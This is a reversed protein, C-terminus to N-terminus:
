PQAPIAQEVLELTMRGGRDREPLPGLTSLFSDGSFEGACREAGDACAVRFLFARRCTQSRDCDDWADLVNVNDGWHDDIERDESVVEGEVVEGVFQVDAGDMGVRLADGYLRRPWAEPTTTLRAEVFAEGDVELEFADADSSFWHEETCGTTASAVALLILARLNVVM